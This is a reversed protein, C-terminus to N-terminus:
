DTPRRRRSLRHDDSESRQTTPHDSPHPYCSGSTGDRAPAVCKAHPSTPRRAGPRRSSSSRSPAAGRRAARRRRPRELALDARCAQGAAPHAPRRFRVPHAAQRPAARGPDPRDAGALTASTSWGRARRASGFPRRSRCGTCATSSSTWRGPRRWCAARGAGRRERGARLDVVADAGLTSCASWRLATAPLASWGAREAAAARDPGRAPRGCRHGGPDAGDRRRRLGANEILPMFAATGSNGVAAALVPDVGDPLPLLDEDAVRVRTAFAGPTAPSPHCEAYVWTGVPYRDSEVVTGVCESGPVYAREHRVSHFTGSAILLDLPNLPAAVVAVLTTGPTRPPAAVSGLRPEAGPADVIAALIEHHVDTM